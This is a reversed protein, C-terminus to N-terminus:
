GSWITVHVAPRFREGGSDASRTMIARTAEPQVIFRRLVAAADVQREGSLANLRWLTQFPTGTVDLHVLGGGALQDAVVHSLAPGIGDGIAIAALAGAHSPQEHIRQPPIKLERAIAALPTYPDAGAPGVIWRDDRLAEPAIAAEGALPHGPAAVVITRVRLFPVSDIGEARIQPGLAVDARHDRLMAALDTARATTVAVRVRPRGRRFAEVLPGIAYEGIEDTAAIALLASGERAEVVARHAHDAIGVMEAAAAALRLGGPTLSIGGGSRIVLQDGFERRLAALAASVAPVSVGLERAAATLSGHRAVATFTRLQTLTM